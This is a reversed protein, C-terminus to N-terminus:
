WRRRRSPWCTFDNVEENYNRESMFHATKPEPSSQGHQLDDLFWATGHKLHLVFIDYSITVVEEELRSTPVDSEECTGVPSPERM